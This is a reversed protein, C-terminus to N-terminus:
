AAADCKREMHRIWPKQTMPPFIDKELYPFMTNQASTEWTASGQILPQNFDGKIKTQFLLSRNQMLPNSVWSTVSLAQHWRAMLLHALGMKRTDRQYSHEKSSKKKQKPLHAPLGTTSHQEEYLCRVSDGDGVCSPAHCLQAGWHQARETHETHKTM